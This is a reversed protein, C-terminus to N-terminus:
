YCTPVSLCILLQISSFLLFPPIFNGETASHMLALSSPDVRLTGLNGDNIEEKLMEFAEKPKGNENFTM